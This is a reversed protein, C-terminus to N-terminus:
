AKPRSPRRRVFYALLEGRSHVGFYRYLTTVHEHVTPASLHLRAAIQKESDGDLLASLVQNQRPSLDHRGRQRRTSLKTEVRSSVCEAVAALVNRARSSFPRDNAERAIAFQVDLSAHRAVAEVLLLGDVHNPRLHEQFFGARHYATPSSLEAATIAGVGQGRLRRLGQTYGPLFDAPAARLVSLFAEVASFSGSGQMELFCHGEVHLDSLTLSTRFGGILNEVGDTAHRQWGAPDDWMECCEEALAYVQKADIRSLVFEVGV